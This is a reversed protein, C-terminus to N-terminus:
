EKEREEGQGDETCTERHATEQAKGHRGPAVAHRQLYPIYPPINRAGREWRQAYYILGTCANTPVSTFM